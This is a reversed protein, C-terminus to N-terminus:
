KTLEAILKEKTKYNKIRLGMGNQKAWARIEDVSMDPFHPFVLPVEPKAEGYQYMVADPSSTANPHTTERVAEEDGVLYGNTKFWELKQPDDTNGQGRVFMVGARVGTFDPVKSFILM